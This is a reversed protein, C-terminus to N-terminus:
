WGAASCTTNRTHVKITEAERQATGPEGRHGDTPHSVETVGSVTPMTSVNAVRRMESVRAAGAVCPMSVNAVGVGRVRVRRGV